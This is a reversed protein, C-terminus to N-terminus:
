SEVEEYAEILREADREAEQAKWEAVVTFYEEPACAEYKYRRIFLLPEKCKPCTCVEPALKTLRGLWRVPGAWFCFGPFNRLAYQVRTVADKKRKRQFYRHYLVIESGTELIMRIQYRLVEANLFPPFGKRAIWIFNLHPNFLEPSDDGFPHSNEIALDGGFRDRLLHWVKRRFARWKVADTFQVRLALPLTIVTYLLPREGRVADFRRLARKARRRTVAERCDKCDYKKCTM